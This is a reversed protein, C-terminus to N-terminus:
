NLYQPRHTVSLQKLASVCPEYTRVLAVTDNPHVIFLKTVGHLAAEKALALDILDGALLAAEHTIRPHQGISLIIFDTGSRVFKVFSVAEDCSECWAEVKGEFSGHHTLKTKTPTNNFSPFM